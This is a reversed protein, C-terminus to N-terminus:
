DLGRAAIARDLGTTLLDTVDQERTELAQWPYPNPEINHSPVGGIIPAAYDVGAGVGIEILSGIVQVDTSDRLAGSLVPAAARTTDAVLEGARGLEPMTGLDGALGALDAVFEDVGRFTVSM